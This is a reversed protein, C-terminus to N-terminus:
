RPKDFFAWNIGNEIIKVNIENAKYIEGDINYTLLKNSSINLGKVRDESILPHGLHSGKKYKRLLPLVEYLSMKKALVLNLLGDDLLADPAPNFGSGYYSGNCLATILYSDSIIKESGDALTMKLTLDEYVLNLLSKVAARLFAREKFRPNKALLEYTRELVYTDFGLSMVNICYEENVRMIDIPRIIPDFTDEIKFNKYDFNKSFDNATGMPILGLAAKTGALINSVEGLSGDGGCVIVVKDAPDDKIFDRAFEKASDKNETTRIILEDERNNRKYIRLISKEFAKFDRSGAKSSLIFLKKM